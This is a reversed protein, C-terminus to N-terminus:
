RAATQCSATATSLPTALGVHLIVGEGQSYVGVVAAVLYDSHDEVFEVKVSSRSVRFKWTTESVREVTAVICGWHGAFLCVYCTDTTQSVMVAHRPHLRSWWSSVVTAGPVIAHSSSFTDIRVWAIMSNAHRPVTPSPWDRKPDMIGDFENPWKKPVPKFTLKTAKATKGQWQKYALSRSSIGPCKVERGELVGSNIAAQMITPVSVHKHRRSREVDRVHQRM